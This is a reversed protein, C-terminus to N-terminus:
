KVARRIEEQPLGEIWAALTMGVRVNKSFKTGKPAEQAVNTPNVTMTVVRIAKPAARLESLFSVLQAPSAEFSITMTMERLSEASPAPAAVNRQILSIGFAKASMEVLNQFEVAALSPSNARIVRTGTEEIQKQVQGILEAYRGKRAIVQRYKKLVDEKDRAATEAGQFTQYLPIALMSVFFYGAVAIVLTGLARRDRKQLSIRM